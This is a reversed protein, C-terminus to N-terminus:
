HVAFLKPLYYIIVTSEQLIQYQRISWVANVSSYVLNMDLKSHFTRIMMVMTITGKLSSHHSISNSVTNGMFMNRVNPIRM